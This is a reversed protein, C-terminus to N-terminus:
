HYNISSLDTQIDVQNCEYNADTETFVHPKNKFERCHFLGDSMRIYRGLPDGKHSVTFRQVDPSLGFRYAREVSFSEELRITYKFDFGGDPNPEIYFEKFFIPKNLGLKKVRERDEKLKSELERLTNESVNFPVVAEASISEALTLTAKCTDIGTLTPSMCLQETRAKIDGINPTENNLSESVIWHLLAFYSNNERGHIIYEIPLGGQCLISRLLQGNNDVLDHRNALIDYQEGVKKVLLTRIESFAEKTCIGKNILPDEWQQSGKGGVYDRRYWESYFVILPLAISGMIANKAARRRELRFESIKEKLYDILELYDGQGYKNSYIPLKINSFDIM